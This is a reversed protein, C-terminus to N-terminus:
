WQYGKDIEAYTLIYSHKSQRSGPTRGVYMYLKQRGPLENVKMKVWDEELTIRHADHLLRSPIM